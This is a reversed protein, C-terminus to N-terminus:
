RTRVMLSQRYVANLLTIAEDRPAELDCQMVRDILGDVERRLAILEDTLTM